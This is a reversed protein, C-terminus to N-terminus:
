YSGLNRLPLPLFLYNVYGIYGISHMVIFELILTDGMDIGSRWLCLSIDAMYSAPWGPGLAWGVIGLRPLGRVAGAVGFGAACRRAPKAGPGELELQPLM